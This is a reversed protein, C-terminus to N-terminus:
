GRRVWAGLGVLGSGVLRWRRSGGEPIAVSGGAGGGWVSTVAAFYGARRSRWRWFGHGLRGSMAAEELLVAGQRVVRGVADGGTGHGLIVQQAPLREHLAGLARWKLAAHEGGLQSERLVVRMRRGRHAEQGVYPMGITRRGDREEERREDGALRLAPAPLPRSIFCCPDLCCSVLRPPGIGCDVGGAEDADGDEVGWTIVGVVVLM